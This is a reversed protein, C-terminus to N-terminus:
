LRVFIEIFLLTRNYTFLTTYSRWLGRLCQVSGLSRHTEVCIPLVVLWCINFIVRKTSFHSSFVQKNLHIWVFVTFRKKCSLSSSVRVSTVFRLTKPDELTSTHLPWHVSTNFNEDSRGRSKRRDWRQTELCRCDTTVVHFWLEKYIYHGPTCYLYWWSLVVTFELELPLTRESVSLDEVSESLFFM